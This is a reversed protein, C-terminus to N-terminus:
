VDLYRWMPIRFPVNHYPVVDLDENYVVRHSKDFDGIRAM